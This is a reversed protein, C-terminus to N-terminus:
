APDGYWIGYDPTDSTHVDTDYIPRPPPPTVTCCDRLQILKFAQELRGVRDSLDGIRQNM